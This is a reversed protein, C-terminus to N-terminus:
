IKRGIITPCTPDHELDVGGCAPCSIVKLIALREKEYEKWGAQIAEIVTGHFGDIPPAQDACRTFVLGENKVWRWRVTGGQPGPGLIELIGAMTDHDPFPRREWTDVPTGVQHFYCAKNDCYVLDARSGGKVLRNTPYGCSFCFKRRAKDKGM